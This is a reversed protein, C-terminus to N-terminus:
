NGTTTWYPSLQLGRTIAPLINTLEGVAGLDRQLSTVFELLHAQSEWVGPGGTEEGAKESRVGSNHM